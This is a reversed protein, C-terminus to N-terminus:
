KISKIWNACHASDDFFKSFDNHPVEVGYKCWIQYYVVAQSWIDSITDLEGSLFQQAAIVPRIYVDNVSRWDDWYSEFDHTEVNLNQKFRQYDLIDDILLPAETSSPKWMFRLPSDRLFLFYKERQVWSENSNWNSLDSLLNKEITSRMSKVIMTNAVIPWTVDTYCIKIIKAGPFFEKFRQGENDIGNDVLVSYNILPDFDFSYHHPDKFYTPATLEQSHSNGDPSFTPKKTPRKFNYGYLNLVSNVFNGFGGSPYWVCYIM